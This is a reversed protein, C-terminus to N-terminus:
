VMATRKTPIRVKIKLVEAVVPRAMSQSALGLMRLIQSTRTEPVSKMPSLHLDDFKYYYDRILTYGVPLEYNMVVSVLITM